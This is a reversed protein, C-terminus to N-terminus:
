SAEDSAEADEAAEAIEREMAADSGEIEGEEDDEIEFDIAEEDEDLEYLEYVLSLTFDGDHEEINVFYEGDDASAKYNELDEATITAEGTPIKRLLLQVTEATGEIENQLRQIAGQAQNEITGVEKIKEEYLEQFLTATAQAAQLEDALQTKSRGAISQGQRRQARNTM